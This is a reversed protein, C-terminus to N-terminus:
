DGGFIAQLRNHRRESARAHKSAAYILRGMALKGGITEAGYGDGGYKQPLSANASAVVADARQDLMGQVGGGNMVEAYGGRNWKFNKFKVECKAKAM